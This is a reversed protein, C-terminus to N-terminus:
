LLNNLCIPATEKQFFISRGGRRAPLSRECSPCGITGLDPHWSAVAHWFRNLQDSESVFIAFASLEPQKSSKVYLAKRRLMGREFCLQLGREVHNRRMGPVSNGGTCEGEHIFTRRVVETQRFVIGESEADVVTCRPIGM